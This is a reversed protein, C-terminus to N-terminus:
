GPPLLLQDSECTGETGGAKEKNREEIGGYEAKGDDVVQEEDFKGDLLRM